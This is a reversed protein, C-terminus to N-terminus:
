KKRKGFKDQDDTDVMIEFLGKHWDSRASGSSNKTEVTVALADDDTIDYEHAITLKTTNNDHFDSPHGFSM